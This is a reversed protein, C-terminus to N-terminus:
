ERPKEPTRPAPHERSDIVKKNLGDVRVSVVKEGAVCTLTHVVRSTAGGAGSHAADPQPQGASGGGASIPMVEASSEIARGSTHKEALAIAEALACQGSEILRAVERHRGADRESVEGRSQALVPWAFVTALSVGSVALLTFGMKLRKM